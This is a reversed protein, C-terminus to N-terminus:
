WSRVPNLGALWTPLEGVGSALESRESDALLAPMPLNVGALWTPLEGVGTALTMKVDGVKSALESRESNALWTPLEGVERALTPPPGVVFSLWFNPVNLQYLIADIWPARWSQVNLAPSPHRRERERTMRYTLTM